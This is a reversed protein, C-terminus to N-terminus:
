IEEPTDVVALLFDLHWLVETFFPPPRVWQRLCAAHVQEEPTGKVLGGEGRPMFRSALAM